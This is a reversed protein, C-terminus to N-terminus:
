YEEEVIAPVAGSILAMQRILEEEDAQYMWDLVKQFDDSQPINTLAYLSLLRIPWEDDDLAGSFKLKADFSQDAGRLVNLMLFKVQWNMDDISMDFAKSLASDPFPNRRYVVGYKKAALKEAVLGDLLRLTNIKQGAYGKNLADLRQALLEETLVVGLRKATTTAPLIKSTLEGSESEFPDFYAQFTIVLNAQPFQQLIRGLMPAESNIYIPVCLTGGPRVPSVPTIKKKIEIPKIGDIDGVIKVKVDINGKFFANDNIVLPQKGNNTIIIYLSLDAGYSFEVGSLSLKTTIVDEPKYFVPTVSDQFSNELNQYLLYTDYSSVYTSNHDALQEFAKEALLSGPEMEILDRLTRCAENDQEMSFQALAYTYSAIQNYNRLPEVIELASAVDGSELLSYGYLSQVDVSKTNRAYARKAMEVGRSTNKDLFFYFYALQEETVYPNGGQLMQEAITSLETLRNRRESRSLPESMLSIYEVVINFDGQGRIRNIIKLCNAEGHEVNYASLVWPLYVREPINKDPNEYVFADAAYGYTDRAVNFLGHKFCYDAFDLVIELSYPDLIIKKRLYPGTSYVTVYEPAVEAIREFAVVNYPDKEYAIKFHKVAEDFNGTEAILSGLYTSLQSSFQDNTSGIDKNFADLIQERRERTPAKSLLYRIGQMAMESDSTGTVYRYLMQKVDDSYDMEQDINVAKLMQPLMINMTKDLKQAAKILIIAERAEKVNVYEPELIDCAIDFFTQATQPSYISDLKEAELEAAGVVSCFLVVVFLSFIM